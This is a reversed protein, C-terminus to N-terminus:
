VNDKSEKSMIFNIMENGTVDKSFFDICKQVSIKKGDEDALSNKFGDILEGLKSSEYAGFRLFVSKIIEKKQESLNKTEITYIEHYDISEDIDSIPICVNSKVLQKEQKVIDGRLYSPFKYSIRVGCNVIVIDDDFLSFGNKLCIMDAVFLLKEMKKDPCGYKDNCKIFFQVLYNAPGLVSNTGETESKAREISVTTTESMKERGEPSQASKGEVLFLNVAKQSLKNDKKLKDKKKICFNVRSIGQEATPFSSQTSAKLTCENIKEIKLNIVYSMKGINYMFGNIKAIPKQSKKSMKYWKKSLFLFANM